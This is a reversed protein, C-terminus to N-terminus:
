SIIFPKSLKHRQYDVELRSTLKSRLVRFPRPFLEVPWQIRETDLISELFNQTRQFTGLELVVYELMRMMWEDDDMREVCMLNRGHCGGPLYLQHCVVFHVALHKRPRPLRPQHRLFDLPPVRSAM